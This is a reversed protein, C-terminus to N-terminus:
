DAPQAALAQFAFFEEPVFAPPRDLPEDVGHRRAMARQFRAPGSLAANPVGIAPVRRLRHRAMERAVTLGLRRKVAAAVFGRAEQASRAGLARWNKNALSEACVQILSHVDPSVESYQGAALGRVPGFSQLRQLIPETGPPSHAADLRRAHTNYEGNVRHEREAVAGTQESRARACLYITAYGGGFIVKIDCLHRRAPERRASRRAGRRTCAKPLPADVSADPVIGPTGGPALM